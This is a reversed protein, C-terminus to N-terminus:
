LVFFPYFTLASIFLNTGAAVVVVTVTNQHTAVSMNQQTKKLNPKADQRVSTTHKEKISQKGNPQKKM